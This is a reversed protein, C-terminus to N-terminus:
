TEPTGLTAQLAQDVDTFQFRFGSALARTPVVRQGNLLVADAMEVGLLTRLAFPPVRLWCPRGLAHALARSLQDNTVPHPASANLPGAIAMNGIAWAVLAVWDHVHIWSFYQRGTGVPGGVFFRFPRAIPPLVGGRADLVLGTRVTVLRCGLDAAPQAASEWEVCLRGLFDTGAPCSEDIPRDELSAGYYGVASGQVFVSPRYRCSEVGAMLSHTPDLRSSRLLSKRAPTWPRDAIGAGSLNVVADAGDLARAWVDAKGDPNWLVAEVGPADRSESRTLVTVHHGGAVLNRTLARGLLGSGGAIVVRM